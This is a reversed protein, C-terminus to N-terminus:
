ISQKTASPSYTTAKISPVPHLELELELVAIQASLLETIPPGGNMKPYSNFKALSSKMTPLIDKEKYMYALLEGIKKTAHSHDKNSVIVIYKGLDETDFIQKIELM